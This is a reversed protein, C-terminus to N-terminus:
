EASEKQRQNIIMNIADQNYEVEALERAALTLMSNVKDQKFKGLQSRIYASYKDQEDKTGEKVEELEALVPMQNNVTITTAGKSDVISFIKQVFYPSFRDNGGRAVTVNKQVSVEEYEKAKAERDSSADIAKLIEDSKSKVAAAHCLAAADDKVDAFKLLEEPHYEYVNIVMCADASLNIVNSNTNSTRNEEAFATKMVEPSNLPWKLSRDAVSVTGSDKVEVGVAKAASDLSEPNEYSIDALKSSLDNYAELAKADVYKTKVQEKVDNFAPVYAETIDDLRIIHAGYSDVIVASYDGKKALNFLAIDLEKSLSGKELVGLNGKEAAFAPDDSFKSGVSEFSEGKKLLTWAEEAKKTFDETTSKILIQSAKRKQAVTFDTQNLNYFDELKKDDVEVQNKLEDVSLLVYNFKVNASKMFKDHNDDYFKKIEDDSVSVKSALAKTDVSYLSVVREQTFLKALMEIEYPYAVCGSEIIPSTLTDVQIDSRLSNAYYDPSSGMNRVVAQFTENSFKGDKQFAPIKRITDKVQEDGVRIGQEYTVTNIAVNDIIRELVQLRLTKVAEPDELVSNFSAGYQHQLARVQDQYNSDWQHSQVEYDGVKVPNSDPKAIMYSGVGAFIFSIMILFFLVKFLK